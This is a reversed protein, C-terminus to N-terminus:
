IKRLTILTIEAPMDLRFPLGITGTGRNIYLFRGDHTYLGGWKDSIFSFLSLHVGAPKVGLQLGHTHGALTLAYRKDCMIQKEWFDPNHSLLIRFSSDPIGKEAKPLDTYKPLGEHGWNEIGVMYITDGHFIVKEHENRLLRFGFDKYAEEIKRFNEAKKEVSEWSSYDGYDHNGLVAFKMDYRFKNFLRSWHDTESAFNNVLDGTFVLIDPHFDNSIEIMEEVMKRSVFSGLHADSFQVIRMGDFGAPLEKFGLEVHNSEVVSAGRFTGWFLSAMIGSSLIFGAMSAIRRNSPNRLPILFLSSFFLPIKLYLDAILLLNAIFHFSYISEPLTYLPIMRLTFITQVIGALIYVALLWKRTRRKCKILLNKLPQWAAGTIIWYSIMLLIITTVPFRRM